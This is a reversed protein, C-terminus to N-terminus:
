QDQTLGIIAPEAEPIQLANGVQDLPKEVLTRGDASVQITIDKGQTLDPHYYYITYPGNVKGASLHVSKGYVQTGAQTRVMIQVHANTDASVGSVRVQIPTWSGVRYNNDFGTVVDLRVDATGRVGAVALLVAFVTWAFVTRLSPLSRLLRAM